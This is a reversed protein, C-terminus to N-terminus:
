GHPVGQGNGFVHGLLEGFFVQPRGVLGSPGAGATHAGFHVGAEARQAAGAGHINLGMQGFGTRQDPAVLGGHAGVHFAQDVHPAAQQLGM